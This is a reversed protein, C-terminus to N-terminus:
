DTLMHEGDAPVALSGVAAVASVVRDVIEEAQLPTIDHPLTFRVATQAVEPSIGLALM